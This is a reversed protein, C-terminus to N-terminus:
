KQSDAVEGAPLSREDVPSKWLKALWSAQLLGVSDGNKLLDDIKGLTERLNAITESPRKSGKRQVTVVWEPYARSVVEVFNPGWDAYQESVIGIVTAADEMKSDFEERTM